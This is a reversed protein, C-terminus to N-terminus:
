APGIVHGAATLAQTAESLRTSHVLLYDTDFTSHALVPIKAGVLPTLVSALIGIENFAFPGQFKLLRWGSEHKIGSPVQNSPCVVSLEDDTRTVASFVASGAWAPAPETPALRCVAYEGGVLLLTIQRM